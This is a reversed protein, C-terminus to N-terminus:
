AVSKHVEDPTGRGDIRYVPWVAAMAEVTPLTDGKYGRIRRLVTEENDDVRGSAAACRVMVRRMMTDEDCELVIVGAVPLSAHKQWAELNSMSRPFGDIVITKAEHDDSTAGLEYITELLMRASLDSPVLEGRVMVDRVARGLENDQSAVTRLQEGLSIVRAMKDQVLMACETGKGSGPGGLLFVVQMGFRTKVRTIERMDDISVRQTM